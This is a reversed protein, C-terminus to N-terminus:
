NGSFMIEVCSPCTIYEDFLVVAGKLRRGCVLSPVDDPCLDRRKGLPQWAHVLVGRRGRVPTVARV